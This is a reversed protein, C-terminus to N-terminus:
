MPSCCLLPFLQFILEHLVCEGSYAGSARLKEYSAMAEGAEGKLPGPAHGCLRETRNQEGRGEGRAEEEERRKGLGGANPERKSYLVATAYGM